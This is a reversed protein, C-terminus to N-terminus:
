GARARAPDPYREAPPWDCFFPSHAEADALLRSIQATYRPDPGDDFTLMVVKEDTHGGYIADGFLWPALFYRNPWFGNTWSITLAVIAAIIAGYRVCRGM